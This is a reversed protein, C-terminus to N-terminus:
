RSKKSSLECSANACNAALAIDRTCGVFQANTYRPERRLETPSVVLPKLGLEGVAILTLGEDDLNRILRAEVVDLLFRGDDREVVVAGLDIEESAVVTRAVYSLSLVKPDLSALVLADRLASHRAPIAATTKASVFMDSAPSRLARKLTQSFRLTASSHIPSGRRRKDIM